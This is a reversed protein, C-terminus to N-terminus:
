ASVIADIQAQTNNLKRTSVRKCGRSLMIWNEEQVVKALNRLLKQKWSTPDIWPCKERIYCGVDTMWQIASQGYAGHVSIIFPTFTKNPNRLISRYKTRKADEAFKLHEISSRNEAISRSRSLPNVISLDMIDEQGDRLRLSLDGRLGNPVSPDIMPERKAHLLASELSLHLEDLSRDHRSHWSANKSCDLLHWLVM